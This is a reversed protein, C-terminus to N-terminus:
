VRVLPRLTELKAPGIGPVDLLQTVSRFPGNRERHSVIAQAITPGVGPLADLQVATASNVDLPHAASPGAAAGGGAAGGSGPSLPPSAAEIGAAADEGERPVWLREGDSVRAALNVRHLAAEGVEGGAARVADAVRSGEPLLYVGPHTVAGAVHVAVLEGPPTAVAGELGAGGLAAQGAVAPGAPHGDAPPPAGASPLTARPLVLQAPPAAQPRLALVAMAAAAAVGGAALFWRSPVSMIAVLRARWDPAAPGAPWTPIPDPQAPPLLSEPPSPEM